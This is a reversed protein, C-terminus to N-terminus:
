SRHGASKIKCTKTIQSKQQGSQNRNVASHAGILSVLKKQVILKKIKLLILVLSISQFENSVFSMMKNQKINPRKAKLARRQQSSSFVNVVYVDGRAKAELLCKFLSDYKDQLSWDLIMVKIRKSSKLTFKADPASGFALCHFLDKLFYQSISRIHADQTVIIAKGLKPSRSKQPM